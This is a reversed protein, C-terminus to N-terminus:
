QIFVVKATGFTGGPGWCTAEWRGRDLGISSFDGARHGDDFHLSGALPSIFTTGAMSRRFHISEIVGVWSARYNDGVYIPSDISLLKCALNRKQPPSPQGRSSSSSSSHSAVLEDFDSAYDCGEGVKKDGLFTESYIGIDEPDTGNADCNSVSLSHANPYFCTDFLDGWSGGAAECAAEPGSAGASVNSIMLLSTVFFIFLLPFPKTFSKNSFFM